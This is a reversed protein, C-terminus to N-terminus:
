KKLQATLGPIPTGNRNVLRAAGKWDGHVNVVKFVLVNVGQKLTVGSFLNQDRGVARSAVVKGIEEGNLYVRASDDSGIWMFADKVTTPSVLYTVMYATSNGAKGLEADLHVCYDDSMVYTWALEQDKLKITESERPELRAENPIWERDVADELKKSGVNPVPGLVLWLRIYGEPDISQTAALEEPPTQTRYLKPDCWVAHANGNNGRCHVELTLRNVGTVDIHFMQEDDRTRVPKSEWLQKGDGKVVFIQGVAARGAGTDNLAVSGTFTRFLGGLNYRVHSFGDPPPHMSLGQLRPVGRVSIRRNGYGLSGKSGFEGHGVVVDAESLDSLYIPKPPGQPPPVRPQPPSKPPQERPETVVQTEVPQKFFYLAAGVGALVSLLGAPILWRPLRRAAKEGKFGRGSQRTTPVDDVLDLDTDIIAHPVEEASEGEPIPLAALLEAPTQFRANPDKAMMKRILAVLDPPLDPRLQELPEPQRVQLWLMKQTTTGGEFPARGTLSFYFTAGLSYIDARNDVTASDIAQEPAMYDVTGMVESENGESQSDDSGQFFRALGLDLVKVVGGNEAVLLNSPKIDRHVLGAEFAHHLGRASQRLYDLARNASLPGDRAVLTDLTAGKVYEMVLYHVPGDQAVDYAHVINRHDLMAIAQAERIFREVVAPDQAQKPPLVKIAVQRRMGAHECLFVKGMGGEGLKGLVKYRGIFFGRWKGQLLQEAQYKTLLGDRVMLGALEEPCGPASAAPLGELYRNIAAADLLKSQAALSAFEANDAPAGM